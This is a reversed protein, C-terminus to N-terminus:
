PGIQIGMTTYPEITHEGDVVEADSLREPEWGTAVAARMVRSLNDIRM